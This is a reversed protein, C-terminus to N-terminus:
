LLFLISIFFAANVMNRQRDASSDVAWVASLVLAGVAQQFAGGYSDVGILDDGREAKRAEEFAVGRSGDFGCGGDADPLVEFHASIHGQHTGAGKGAAAAAVIAVSSEVVEFPAVVVIVKCASCVDLQM